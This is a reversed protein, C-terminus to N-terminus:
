TPGANSQLPATPASGVTRNRPTSDPRRDWKAWARWAEQSYLLAQQALWRGANQRAHTPFAELSSPNIMGRVVLGAAHPDCNHLDRRFPLHRGALSLQWLGKFAQHYKPSLLIDRLGKDEEVEEKWPSTKVRLLRSIGLHLARCRYAAEPDNWSIRIYLQCYSGHPGGSLSLPPLQVWGDEDPVGVEIGLQHEGDLGQWLAGGVPIHGGAAIRLAECVDTTSVLYTREPWWTKRVAGYQARWLLAWVDKM